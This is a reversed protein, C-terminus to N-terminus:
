INEISSAEVVVPSEVHSETTVEPTVSVEQSTQSQSELPNVECVSALPVETTDVGTGVVEESHTVEPQPASNTRVKMENIVTNLNSSIQDREAVLDFALAKLELLTHQSIDM